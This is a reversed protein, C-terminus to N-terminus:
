PMRSAQGPRVCGAVTLAIAPVLVRYGTGSLHVGDDAFAEEGLGKLLHDTRVVQAGVEACAVIAARRYEDIVANTRDGDGTLRREVVGPPALYVCNYALHSTLFNSVLREFEALPVHKWPAADNTGVSLVVIDVGDRVITAQGSLDRSSAGGVAANHVEGPFGALARRIRAM